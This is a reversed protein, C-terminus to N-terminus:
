SVVYVVNRRERHFMIKFVKGHKSFLSEIDERSKELPINKVFLQCWLMHTAANHSLVHKGTAQRQGKKQVARRMPTHLFFLFCLTLHTPLLVQRVVPTVSVPRSCNHLIKGSLERCALAGGEKDM